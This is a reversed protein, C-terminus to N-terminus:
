ITWTTICDLQSGYCKYQNGGIRCSWSGGYDDGGIVNKLQERSLIEGIGKFNLKKM